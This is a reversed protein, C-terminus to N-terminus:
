FCLSDLSSKYDGFSLSLGFKNAIFRDPGTADFATSIGFKLRPNTLRHEVATSVTYLSDIKAKVGTERDLRYEAGATFMHPSMGVTDISVGADIDPTVRHFYSTTFAAFKKLSKITATGADNSYEAGINYDTLQQKDAQLKAQAAVTLGTTGINFAGTCEFTPAALKSTLFNNSRFGLGVTFDQTQYDLDEAAIDGCSQNGLTMRSSWSLGNFDLVHEYKTRVEAGGVADLKLAATHGKPHKYEGQSYGSVKGDQQQQLGSEFALGNKTINRTTASHQFRYGGFLAKV